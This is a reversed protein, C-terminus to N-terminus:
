FENKAPDLLVDYPLGALAVAGLAGIVGNGGYLTIGFREATAEAVPRSIVQERVMRGYERLDPPIVFGSRVAIGWEHTLAEDAVFKRTKGIVDEYRDPQVAVEIYSASNGATKGFVDPNLM